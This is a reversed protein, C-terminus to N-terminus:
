GSPADSSRPPADTPEAGAAARPEAPAAPRDDRARRLRDVLRMLPYWVLGVVMLLAAGLLALMAGVAGIGAGPGIYLLSALPAM